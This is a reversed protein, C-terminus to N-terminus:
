PKRELAARAFLEGVPWGKARWRDAVTSDWTTASKDTLHHETFWAVPESQVPRPYLPQCDPHSPNFGLFKSGGSERYWAVPEGQHTPAAAVMLAYCYGSVRPDIVGSKKAAALMEATPERPVSVMETNSSRNETPM